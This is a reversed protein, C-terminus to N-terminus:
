YTTKAVNIVIARMCFLTLLNKLTTIGSEYETLVDNFNYKDIMM